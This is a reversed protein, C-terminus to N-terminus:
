PPKCAQATLAKSCLITAIIRNESNPTRTHMWGVSHSVSDKRPPANM